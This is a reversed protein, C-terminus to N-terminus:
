ESNSLSQSLMFTTMVTLILDIFEFKSAMQKQHREGKIKLKEKMEDVSSGKLYKDLLDLTSTPYFFSTFQQLLKKNEKIKVYKVLTKFADKELEDCKFSSKTYEKYTKFCRKFIIDLCNYISDIEDADDSHEKLNEYITEMRSYMLDMVKQFEEVSYSYAM